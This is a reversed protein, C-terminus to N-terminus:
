FSVFVCNINVFISLSFAVDFLKDALPQFRCSLFLLRPCLILWVDYKNPSCLCFQFWNRPLSLHRWNRYYNSVTNTKLSSFLRMSTGTHQTSRNWINVFSRSIMCSWGFHDVQWLSYFNYQIYKTYSDISSTTKKEKQHSNKLLLLGLPLWILIRTM